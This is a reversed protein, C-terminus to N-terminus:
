SEESYFPPAPRCGSRSGPASLGPWAPCSQGASSTLVSEWSRITRTLCSLETRCVLNPGVRLLPYDPDLLVVRDHLRDLNPGVRLLPYDPDLLVDRDQLRPQSSSISCYSCTLWWNLLRNGGSAHPWCRSSKRYYKQGWKNWWTTNM